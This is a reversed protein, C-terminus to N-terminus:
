DRDGRGDTAFTGNVFLVRERRADDTRITAGRLRAREDVVGIQNKENAAAGTRYGSLTPAVWRGASAFHNM